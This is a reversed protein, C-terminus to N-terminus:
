KKRIEAFKHFFDDISSTTIVKSFYTKTIHVQIDLFHM